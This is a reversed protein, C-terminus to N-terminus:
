GVQYTYGTVVPNYETIERRSGSEKGVKVKIGIIM